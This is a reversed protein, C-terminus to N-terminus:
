KRRDTANIPFEILNFMERMRSRVRKGYMVEIEDTNLNSTVHTKSKLLRFKDYRNLIIEGLVNSKNGFNQKETETGLDDFCFGVEKHKFYDQFTDPQYVGFYKEIAPYGGKGDEGGRAFDSAVQRASVVIYSSLPNSSFMRMMETKGCGVNGYMYLGKDFNFGNGAKLFREDYTFYQSLIILQSENAPDIIFHLGTQKEWKRICASLFQEASLKPMPKPNNVRKWYEASRYNSRKKQLAQYIANNAAQDREQDTLQIHSDDIDSSVQVQEPQSLDVQAIEQITKSIAEM